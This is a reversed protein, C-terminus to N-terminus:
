WPVEMMSVINRALRDMATKQATTISEGLEPIFSATSQVIVPPTPPPAPAGELPPLVPRVNRPTLPKSLIEGTRLDRWTVEVTLVTDAERVENLQNRNLITKGFSIIKCDLETDAPSGLGVVKYPTVQEIERVVTRTLEFELDRYTSFNQFIPVRITKINCDYNPKTTYGLVTFNSDGECAPLLFVLSPVLCRMGLRLWGRRSEPEASQDKPKSQDTPIM